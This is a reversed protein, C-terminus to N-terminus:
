VTPGKQNDMKFMVTHVQGDWVGYSDRGRIKGGAGAVMFKNQVSQTQKLKTFLNMQTM